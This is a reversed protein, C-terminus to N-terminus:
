TKRNEIKVLHVENCPNTICQVAIKKIVSFLTFHSETHGCNENACVVLAGAIQTSSIFVIGKIESTRSGVNTKKKIM